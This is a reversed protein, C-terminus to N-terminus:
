RSYYRQNGVPVDNKQWSQTYTYPKSSSQDWNHWNKDWPKWRQDWRQNKTQNEPSKDEKRPQYSGHNHWRNADNGAYSSSTSGTGFRNGLTTPRNKATQYRIMAFEAGREAVMIVPAMTNGSPVTPIVSADAVRLGEIGHVRLQMDVVAMPDSDPGMKCTGVQHNEPATHYKALCKFYEDTPNPGGGPCDKGYGETPVMGYKERLITTNSLRYAIRAADVLVNLEHEDLFYNPQMLPPATPDVSQLTLYGRSRPQLAVASITIHRRETIKEIDIEEPVTADGCSAYYGGFFFQIDPHRGGAAALRSNVIGTLQSMGTSSLPGERNLVYQTATEWNLQPVDPEKMLTFDLQVGVHNHLNQGVGPLDKITPINFKDLTEKPGVGSLLLIQPSNLAGGALIVEKNVGVTRVEGDKIYEMAKVKKTTPDIIVRSGLANFLIHLNERHSAPRLYARSTSFRTGGDNLAQALTFGTNTEGNLDSTPPYGLEIAASVVDHAFQPAYRFKQVPLPGGTNHYQGSVGNGIEKNDESKLFYPLVDFWSWGAAGNVAWGDYDAPSGRMYMMGNIVSCGGLMKGRPWSCVGGNALCAKEQPVTKYNWDTENRGWYATVWAPVSSQTPEDGGAELLLVKWQPNESLRGAVVAGATGGGVVVFDYSEDLVDRSEFRNCPDALDCRGNIFSELISMFLLFQGGCTGAMSPGVEKIPCPCAEAARIM